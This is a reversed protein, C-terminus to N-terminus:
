SGSYWKYTVKTSADRLPKLEFDRICFTARIDNRYYECHYRFVIEIDPGCFGFAQLWGQHLSELRLFEQLGKLRSLKSKSQEAIKLKTRVREELEECKDHFKDLNAETPWVSCEGNKQLQVHCGLMSFGDEVIAKQKLKGNFEGGPAGTLGSSLAKAVDKADEATAAFAFFNDAHNIVISSKCTKLPMNAICWDAVVASSASGQPLGSPSSIHGYQTYRPHARWNAGGSLVIQRIAEKPLPLTKLLAEETFSPFFSEIDFEIVHKYGKEKISTIALEVKQSFSLHAFQFAQPKYTTRLVKIVMHQAARAVPGFSTVTRFGNGSSKPQSWVLAPENLRKLIDFKTALEWLDKLSLRDKM